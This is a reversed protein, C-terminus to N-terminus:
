FFSLFNNNAELKTRSELSADSRFGGLIRISTSQLAPEISALTALIDDAVTETVQDIFLEDFSTVSELNIADVRFSSTKINLNKFTKLSSLNITEMTQFDLYAFTVLSELKPLNLSGESNSSFSVSFEPFSVCNNASLGYQSTLNAFNVTDLEFNSDISLSGIQELKTFEVSELSNNGIIEISDVNGSLNNLVITELLSNYRFSLYTNAATTLKPFEITHLESNNHLQLSASGCLFLPFSGLSSSITELNPLIIQNLGINALCHLAGVRKLSPLNLVALGSNQSFSVYEIETLADLELGEMAQNRSLNFSEAKVLNPAIFRSLNPVEYFRISGSEKLSLLSVEIPSTSDTVSFDGMSQLSAFHVNSLNENASISIKSSEALNPQKLDEFSISVLNEHEAISINSFTKFFKWDIKQLSNNNALNLNHINDAKPFVINKIQSNGSITLSGVINQTDPFSISTLASNNEIRIDILETLETINLSTLASTNRVLVFKTHPGVEAEIKAQAEENSIGGTLILHTSGAAEGDTGDVGNIGDKGDSGNIGDKGDEPSCSAISLVAICALVRLYNRRM